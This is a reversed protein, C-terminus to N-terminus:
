LNFNLFYFNLNWFDALFLIRVPSEMLVDVISRLGAGGCFSGVLVVWFLGMMLNDCVSEVMKVCLGVCINVPNGMALPKTGNRYRDIRPGLFWTCTVGAAGGVIHIVAGSLDVAGLNRLWGHEGTFKLNGHIKIKNKINKHHVSGLDM